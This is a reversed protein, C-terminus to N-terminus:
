AVQDASMSLRGLTARRRRPVFLLLVALCLLPVMGIAGCWRPTATVTDEGYIGQAYVLGLARQAVAQNISKQLAEGDVGPLAAAVLSALERFPHGLTVAIGTGEPANAILAELKAHLTTRQGLAVTYRYAHEQPPIALVLLAGAAEIQQLTLLSADDIGLARLEDLGVRDFRIAGVGEALDGAVVLSTEFLPTSEGDRTVSVRLDGVITESAAGGTTWLVVAGSLFIRSQIEHPEGATTGVEGRDFVVERFEDAQATVRYSVLGVDSFCGAEVAFEEPNPQDLRTPDSFTCSGHGFGALAGNLDTSTVSASATLPLEVGTAPFEGDDANVSAPTEAILEQVHTSVTARTSVVAARALSVSGFAVIAVGISFARCPVVM